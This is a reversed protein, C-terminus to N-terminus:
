GPSKKTKRTKTQAKMATTAPKRRLATKKRWGRVRANAYMYACSFGFPRMLKIMTVMLVFYRGYAMSAIVNTMAPGSAASVCPVPSSAACM